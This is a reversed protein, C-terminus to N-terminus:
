QQGLRAGPGPDRGHDAAHDRDDAPLEARHEDAPRHDDGPDQHRAPGGARRQPSADAHGPDRQWRHYAVVWLHTRPNEAFSHHGPGQHTRDSGLIEGRYTWPGVPSPGTAYHVSYDPGNWHGHSYSLYYIGDREHVFAGETFQPPTEVPIERAIETMNPKLEFIRLTAGASGGAYLYAKGSRPDVFAMPDIAEFGHGGTLLPKGSDVFPGDPRDVM